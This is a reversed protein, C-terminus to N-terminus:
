RHITHQQSLSARRLYCYFTVLGCVKDIDSNIRPLCRGEVVHAASLLDCFKSRMVQDCHTFAKEVHGTVHYLAATYVKALCNLSRDKGGRVHRRVSRLYVRSLILFIADTTHRSGNRCLRLLHTAKALM